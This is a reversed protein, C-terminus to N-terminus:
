EGTWQLFADGAIWADSDSLGVVGFGYSMPTPSTSREWATGDWHLILMEDETFGDGTSGVAWVDDPSVAAIDRLFSLAGVDIGLPVNAWREGNWHVIGIFNGGCCGDSTVAWADTPSSATVADLISHGDFCPPGGGNEFADKSWADGDWHLILQACGKYTGVAWVDSESTAAVDELSSYGRGLDPLDQPNWNQGDWRLLLARNGAVGVAWANTASTAAVGSLWNWDSDPNPSDVQSWAAGDWHLILTLTVGDADVYSGVAWADTSSLAAVANLSVDDSPAPTTVTMWASGDWHMALPPCQGSQALCGAGSGVAWVDDSARAAVSRLLGPPDPPVHVWGERAPPDTPKPSPSADVASAAPTPQVSTTPGESPAPKPTSGHPPSPNPTSGTNAPSNAVSGCATLTGILVVSVLLSLARSM